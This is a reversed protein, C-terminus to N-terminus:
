LRTLIIKRVESSCDYCALGLPESPRSEVRTKLSRGIGDFDIVTKENISCIVQHERVSVRFRYWVENEFTYPKGTENESADSGDISSLGTINGSWGGNVFTLFGDQVPFTLAAFFDDGDLRRAEYAIDFNTKPLDRLTTTVGTMPKGKGLSLTSNKVAVQGPKFFDTAAWGRLGETELLNKADAFSSGSANPSFRASATLALTGPLLRIFSRRNQPM